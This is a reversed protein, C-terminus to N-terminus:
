TCCIVGFILALHVDVFKLFRTFIKPFVLKLELICFNDRTLILHKGGGEGTFQAEAAPRQARYSGQFRRFKSTM